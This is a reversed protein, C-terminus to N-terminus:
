TIKGEIVFYYKGYMNGRGIQRECVGKVEEHSADSSAYVEIGNEMGKPPYGNMEYVNVLYKSLLQM